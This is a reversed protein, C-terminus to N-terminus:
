GDDREDGPRGAYFPLCVGSRSFCVRRPARVDSPRDLHHRHGCSCTPVGKREDGGGRNWRWGYLGVRSSSRSSSTGAAACSTRLAQAQGRGLLESTLPSECASKNEGRV